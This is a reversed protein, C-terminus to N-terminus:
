GPAGRGGMKAWILAAPGASLPAGGQGEVTLPHHLLPVSAPWRRACLSPSDSPRLLRPSQDGSPPGTYPLSPSFFFLIDSSVFIILFRKQRWSAIRNEKFSCCAPKRQWSFTNNNHNNYNNYHMKHRMIHLLECFYFFLSRPVLGAGILDGFCTSLFCSRSEM